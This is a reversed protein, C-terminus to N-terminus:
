IPVSASRVDLRGSRAVVVDLYRGVVPWMMLFVNHDLVVPFHNGIVRRSMTLLHSEKSQQPFWIRYDM